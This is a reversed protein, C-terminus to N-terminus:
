VAAMVVVLLAHRGKCLGDQSAAPSESGVPALDGLLISYAATLHGSPQYAPLAPPDDRDCTPCVQFLTHAMASLPSGTASQLAPLLRQWALAAGEAAAVDAGQQSWSRLEAASPPLGSLLTEPDQAIAKALAVKLDAALPAEGSAAHLCLHM